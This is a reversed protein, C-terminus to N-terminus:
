GSGVAGDAPTACKCFATRDRHGGRWVATVAKDIPCLVRLHDARRRAVRESHGAGIGRQCSVELLRRNPWSAHAEEETPWAEGQKVVRLKVKKSPHLRGDRGIRKEPPAKAGGARARRVTDKSLGIAAALKRNSSTQDQDVVTVAREGAPIYGADCGSVGCKVRHLM